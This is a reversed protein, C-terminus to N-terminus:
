KMLHYPARGTPTWNKIRVGDGPSSTTLNAQSIGREVAAKVAEREQRDSERKRRQKEADVRDVRGISADNGVEEVGGERYTRRLRSKSDYMQGDLMSQVPRMTDSIVAPCALEGQNLRRLFAREERQARIAAMEDPERWTMAVRDFVKGATGHSM